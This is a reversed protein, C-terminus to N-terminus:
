AITLTEGDYAGLARVHFGIVTDDQVMRWHRGEEGFFRLAQRELTYRMAMRSYMPVDRSVVDARDLTVQRVITWHKARAM